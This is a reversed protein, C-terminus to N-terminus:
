EKIRVQRSIPLIIRGGTNLSSEYNNLLDQKDQNSVESEDWYLDDIIIDYNKNPTWSYAEAKIINIDEHLYNVYDILEQNNDIVDISTPNKNEKIYQPLVGLGLGLVLVNGWNAGVYLRNFAGCDSCDGTYVVAGREINDIGHKPNAAFILRSVGNVKTVDFSTGSYETILSEDIM